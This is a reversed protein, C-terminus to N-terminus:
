TLLGVGLSVGVGARLTSPAAPPLTAAGGHPRSESAAHPEPQGKALAHLHLFSAPAEPKRVQPGRPESRRDWRRPASSVAELPTRLGSGHVRLGCLHARARERGRAGTSHPSAPPPQEVPELGTRPRGDQPPSVRGPGQGDWSSAHLFPERWPPVLHLPLRRTGSTPSAPASGKELAPAAPPCVSM